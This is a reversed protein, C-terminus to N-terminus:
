AEDAYSLVVLFLSILLLLRFGFALAKLAFQSPSTAMVSRSVNVGVVSVLLM